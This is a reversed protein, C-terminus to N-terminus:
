TEATRRLSCSDDRWSSVAQASARLSSQRWGDARGGRAGVRDARAWRVGGARAARAHEPRGRVNNWARAVSIGARDTL